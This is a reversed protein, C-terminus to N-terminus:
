DVQKNSGNIQSIKAKIHLKDIVASWGIMRRLKQSEENIPVEVPDSRGSLQFFFTLSVDFQHPQHFSESRVMIRNGIESLVIRFGDAFYEM